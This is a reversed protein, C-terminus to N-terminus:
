YNRFNKNKDQYMNIDAQNLVDGLSQDAEKLTAWGLSVSLDEPLDSRQNFKNIEKEIRCCLKRVVETGLDPLLLAFEDGGIRGLIDRDRTVLDIIEGTKKIFMDGMKHGYNDNIKKLGDLDGVVISTPVLEEEDLRALEQEFCRRNSVGTLKDHMSLYELKAISKKQKDIDRHIGVARIPCGQKDRDFVKGIDEIWKWDGKKTKLRYEARYYESEGLLHKRLSKLVQKKDQPHILDVWTSIHNELDRKKYGLMEAWKNNFNIKQTSINWDWFGLNGGEIALELRNKLERLEENEKKQCSIIFFSSLLVSLIALTAVTIYIQQNSFLDVLLNIVLLLSFVVVISIFSLNCEKRAM